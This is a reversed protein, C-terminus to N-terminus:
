RYNENALKILVERSLYNLRAAEDNIQNANNQAAFYMELRSSEDKKNKPLNSYDPELKVKQTDYKEILELNGFEVLDMLQNSSYGLFKMEPYCTYEVYKIIDSALYKTYNGISSRIAGGTTVGKQVSSNSVWRSGVQDILENEIIKESFPSTGLFGSIKNLTEMSSNVIDEYKVFHFNPHGEYLLSLHVSKRWNRVHFLIPRYDGVFERGGGFNMSAIVDRPDRLIIVCKIGEAMYYGIFEECNVEKTGALKRSESSLKDVLYLYAEVLTSSKYNALLKDFDEIQTLQGSFGKMETLLDRLEDKELHFKKLFSILDSQTYRREQFLNNLVYYNKPYDIEAFFVSKLYRYLYPLPQSHIAIETHNHLLKELLTTGSRTLGTIFFFRSKSM